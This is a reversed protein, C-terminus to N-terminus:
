ASKWNEQTAARLHRSGGGTRSFIGELMRSREGDHEILVPERGSSRANFAAVQAGAECVHLRDRFGIAPLLAARIDEASLHTTALWFDAQPQEWHLAFRRVANTVANATRPTYFECIIAFCRM